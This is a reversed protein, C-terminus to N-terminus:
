HENKIRRIWNYVANSLKTYDVTVTAGHSCYFARQFAPAFLEQVEPDVTVAGSNMLHNRLEERKDHTDEVLMGKSNLFTLMTMLRTGDIAVGVKRSKEELWHNYEQELSLKDSFNM